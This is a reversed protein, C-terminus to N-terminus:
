EPNPPLPLDMEGGADVPGTKKNTLLYFLVGGAMATLPMVKVWTPTKRKVIFTNSFTYNAPNDVSSIKYKYNKGPETNLPIEWELTGKNITRNIEYVRSTDNYLEIQLNENAIAGLWTIKYSKGRKHLANRQPTTFRMPSYTLTARVEINIDGEFNGLEKKVGWEISKNQGPKLDPGIDGRVQTLPATMGNHSSYVAVSYIQGSITGLLDYTIMVINGKSQARVNNVRQASVFHITVFFFLLLPFYFKM